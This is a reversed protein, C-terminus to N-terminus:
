PGNAGTMEADTNLNLLDTNAILQLRISTEDEYVQSVRNILAVKAPTVNAPGGFYTSYAPDTLLALRYTRLQDGTQNDPRLTTAAHGIPGREVFTGRPDAVQRTFYTVYRRQSNRYYPDIYWG